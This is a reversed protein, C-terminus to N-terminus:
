ESDKLVTLLRFEDGDQIAPTYWSFAPLRGEQISKKFDLIKPNGRIKELCIDVVLMCQDQNMQSMHCQERPIGTQKSLWKYM